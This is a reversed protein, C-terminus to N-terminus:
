TDVLDQYEGWLDRIRGELTTGETFGMKKAAIIAAEQQKEVAEFITKDLGLRAAIDLLEALMKKALGRGRYAPDVVIRLEGVHCRAPSRSQPLSADAVIEDGLVAVIPIVRDFDIETTWDRIVEPDTVNEKLYRDAEPVRRFFRLLPIQDDKELPRLDVKTGYRLTVTKPYAETTPLPAM